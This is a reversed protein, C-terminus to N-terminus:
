RNLKSNSSVAKRHLVMSSESKEDHALQQGKAIVAQTIAQALKPWELKNSYKSTPTLTQIFPHWSLPLLNVLCLAWDFDNTLDKNIVHLQDYISRLKHIHKDIPMGDEMKAWFMM